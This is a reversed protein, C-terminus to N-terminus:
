KEAFREALLTAVDRKGHIVGLIRLTEPDYSYIVMLQYFSYFNVKLSTLDERKHDIRPDRALTEFTALVKGRVRDAIDLSAENALYRWIRKLDERAQPAVEIRIM